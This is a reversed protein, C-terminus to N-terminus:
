RRFDRRILAPDRKVHDEIAAEILILDKHSPKFAILQGGRAAPYRYIIPGHGFTCNIPGGVSVEQVKEALPVPEATHPRPPQVWRCFPWKALSERDVVRM